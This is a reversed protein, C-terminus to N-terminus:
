REAILGGITVFRYGRKTLNRVVIPLAQADQSQSGVHMLLITGPATLAACRQVIAAAGIGEWGLSDLTWMVVYRYGLSRALQLTAADYDGYPPRFYPRTTKGTLRHVIEETRVIERTRQARDLPGLHTSLGTFSAHDYTHNIFADGDHAIRRVLDPNAAAWKGTMGFTAPIRDHELTRLIAAAFGRDAGADFTLAVTRHNPPGASIMQAPATTAGSLLLAAACILRM